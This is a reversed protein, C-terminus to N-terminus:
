EYVLYQELMRMIVRLHSLILQNYKILAETTLIKEIVTEEVVMTVEDADEVVAEDAMGTTEM